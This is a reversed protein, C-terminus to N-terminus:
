AAADGRKAPSGYASARRWTTARAVLQELVSHKADNNAGGQREIELAPAYAAERDQPDVDARAALARDSPLKRPAKPLRPTVLDRRQRVRARGRAFCAVGSRSQQRLLLLGRNAWGAPEQPVLEIVRDFKQRALVEQTTQMASLGVYFATVAERYAAPPTEPARRPSCALGMAVIVSVLVLSRSFM